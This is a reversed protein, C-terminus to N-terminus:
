REARVGPQRSRTASPSPHGGAQRGANDRASASV